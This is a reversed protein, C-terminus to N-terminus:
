EPPADEPRATPAPPWNAADRTLTIKPNAPRLAIGGITGLTLVATVAIILYIPVAETAHRQATESM